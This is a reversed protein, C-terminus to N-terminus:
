SARLELTATFPPRGEGDSPDSESAEITWTGAGDLSFTHSWTGREGSGSTATTFTEEVVDGDPGLLRLLVNAEFTNAQGGVTVDGVGVQQGWTHTEFTVPSLAFLDPEIPQSWDLHGWLEDIEAGDVLLQVRETASFQAATHALQQAFAEEAASGQGGQRVAGSLDVVVIDGDIDVGLVETGSPALTSLGPDDPDGGVLLEMAARAVGVTPEDLDETVPEVWPGSDDSRVFYATATDAGAPDDADPPDGGGDEGADGEDTSPDAPDADPDDPGDPEGTVDPTPAPTAGDEATPDAGCAALLLVALLLALRRM